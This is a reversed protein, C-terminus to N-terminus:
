LKPNESKNTLWVQTQLPNNDTKKKLNLGPNQDIEPWQFIPFNSM